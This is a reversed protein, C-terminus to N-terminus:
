VRLIERRRVQLGHTQSMMVTLKGELGTKEEALGDRESTVSTLASEQTMLQTQSVSTINTGYQVIRRLWVDYRYNM